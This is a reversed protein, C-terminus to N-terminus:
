CIKFKLETTALKIIDGDFIQREGQIKDGNIYTGNKSNLDAIYFKDNKLYILAHKRGIYDDGSIVVDCVEPDRGINTIDNVIDNEKIQEDEQYTLTALSKPKPKSLLQTEEISARPKQVNLEQTEYSKNNCQINSIIEAKVEPKLIPIEEVDFNLRSNNNAISETKFDDENTNRNAFDKQRSTKEIEESVNNIKIQKNVKNLANTEKVLKIILICLVLILCIVVLFFIMYVKDSLIFDIFEKMSFVEVKNIKM